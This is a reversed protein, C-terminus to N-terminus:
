EDLRRDLERLAGKSNDWSGSEYISVFVNDPGFAKAMEVVANNWHSRLIPENNWHLAAIFIRTTPPPLTTPRVLHEAAQSLQHHIIFVETVVRILLILFICRIITRVLPRRIRAVASM